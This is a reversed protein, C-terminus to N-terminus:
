KWWERYLAALQRTHADLRAEATAMRDSLLEVADRLEAVSAGLPALEDAVRVPLEAVLGARLEALAARLQALEFGIDGASM